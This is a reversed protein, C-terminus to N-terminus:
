RTYAVSMPICVGDWGSAPAGPEKGKTTMEDCFGASASRAPFFRQESHPVM